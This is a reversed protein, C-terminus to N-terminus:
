VVGGDGTLYHRKGEREGLAQEGRGLRRERVRHWAKVEHTTAATHSRAAQLPPHHLLVPAPVARGQVVDLQVQRGKLRLLMARRPQSSRACGPQAM